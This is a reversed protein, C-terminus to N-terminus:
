NFKFFRRYSLAFGTYVLFCISLSALGAVTSGIIGFQEGTHLFRVFMRAKQGKGMEKYREVATIVREVRDYTITTRQNPLIGGGTNVLMRVQEAEPKSPLIVNISKWAPELHKAAVFAEQLSSRDRKTQDSRGNHGLTEMAGGSLFAPGQRDLPLEGFTKYLIENAWPYSIIVGSVVIPLVPVLAWIGFVHHWNFDRAKSTPIKRQFFLKQKLFLWKWVKPLWLYLGSVLIFMLVLNSFGTVARAIKREAGAVGLWRHIDVIVHFFAEVDSALSDVELGTYPDLTIQGLGIKYITLPASNRNDFSLMVMRAGKADDMAIDALADVSLPVAGEIVDVRDIESFFAIIKHEYTLLIGTVSMIFIIVGTVIGAILHAWFVIRRLPM